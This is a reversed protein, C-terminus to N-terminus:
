RALGGTHGRTESPTLPSTHPSSASRSIPRCNPFGADPALSLGRRVWGLMDALAKQHARSAQPSLLNKKLNRFPFYSKKKRWITHNQLSLPKRKLPNFASILDATANGQPSISRKEM